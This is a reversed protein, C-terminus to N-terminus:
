SSFIGLLKSYYVEERLFPCVTHLKNVVEIIRLVITDTNEIGNRVIYAFVDSTVISSNALRTPIELLAAIKSLILEKKLCTRLEVIRRSFM